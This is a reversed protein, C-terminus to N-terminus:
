AITFAAPAMGGFMITPAPSSTIPIIRTPLSEFDKNQAQGRGQLDPDSVNACNQNVKVNNGFTQACGDPGPVYSTPGSSSSPRAPAIGSAGSPAANEASNPNLELEAFGSLLRKQVATLQKYSLARASSDSGGPVSLATTLLVFVILISTLRLKM